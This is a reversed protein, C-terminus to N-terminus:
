LSPEKMKGRFNRLLKLLFVDRVGGKLFHDILKEFITISVFKSVTLVFLTPKDDKFSVKSCGPLIDM